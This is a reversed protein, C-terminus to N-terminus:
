RIVEAKPFRMVKNITANNEAIPTSCTVFIRFNSYLFILQIRFEKELIEWIKVNTASIVTKLMMNDNTPTLYKYVIRLGFGFYPPLHSNLTSTSQLEM